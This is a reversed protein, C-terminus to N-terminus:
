VIYIYLLVIYILWVVCFANNADNLGMKTIDLKNM